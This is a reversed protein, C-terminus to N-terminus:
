GRDGRWQFESIRMQSKSTGGAVLVVVPTGDAPVPLSMYDSTFSGDSCTGVYVPAADGVRATIVM